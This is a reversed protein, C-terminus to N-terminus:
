EEKPIVNHYYYLNAYSGGTMELARSIYHLQTLRSYRLIMYLVVYDKRSAKTYSLAVAHTNGHANIVVHVYTNGTFVELLEELCINKVCYVVFSPLSIALQRVRLFDFQLDQKLHTLFHGTLAM